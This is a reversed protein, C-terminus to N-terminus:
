VEVETVNFDFWQMLNTTATELIVNVTKVCFVEQEQNILRVAQITCAMGPSVQAKVRVIGDATVITEVIPAEYWSGAVQYQAKYIDRKIFNRLDKFAATTLM